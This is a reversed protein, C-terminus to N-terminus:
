HSIAGLHRGFVAALDTTSVPKRVFDDCGAEMARERSVASSQATCAVIVAACVDEARRIRRTAELGDIEPMSLDMLILAPRESRAAELAEEGGRAEVVRYGLAELQLRMLERIDDTDDVVLVTTGTNATNM